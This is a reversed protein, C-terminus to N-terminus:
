ELFQNLVLSKRLSNQNGKLIGNKLYPIWMPYVELWYNKKERRKISKITIKQKHSRDLADAMRIIAILKAVIIREKTPLNNFNEDNDKPVGMSHYRSINAVMEMDMRSMGFLELARILEYSHVSHMDLSIYKGIDHLICAVQLLIREQKLGHVKRLKDFMLLAINEVHQSHKRNYNYQKALVVANTVIDKVTVDDVHLNYIDEHIFRIIGDALSVNPIIIDKSNTREIFQHFLMMSPVLIEARERKVDYHRKIEETSKEILENELDKFSKKKLYQVDDTINEDILNTIVRIEGGVVVLHEYSRRDSFFELGELNVRIYEGLLRYYKLTQDELGGLIEKIRLAGMKVNQSYKLEGHHYSSIQISGAGIVVIVAGEQILKDYNDLKYKIAKLTLFQEEANDIVNIKFGTKLKIQDLIYERNSAERLASTAMVKYAKVGYDDM